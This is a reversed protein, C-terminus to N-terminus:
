CSIAVARAVMAARAAMGTDGRLIMTSKVALAESAVTVALVARVEPVGKAVVPTSASVASPALRNSYLPPAGDGGKQGDTGSSGPLGNGGGFGNGPETGKFWDHHGVTGPQGAQGNNGGTGPLGPLGPKGGNVICGM